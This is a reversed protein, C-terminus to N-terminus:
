FLPQHPELFTCPISNFAINLTLLKRSQSKSECLGFAEGSRLPKKEECDTKTTDFLVKEIKAISFHHLTDSKFRDATPDSAMAPVM